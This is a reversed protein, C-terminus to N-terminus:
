GTPPQGLAGEWRREAARAVRVVVDALDTADLGFRRASTSIGLAVTVAGSPSTVPAAITCFGDAYEQEDLAHGRARVRELDKRLDVVRTLTRDTRPALPESEVADLYSPSVALLVKTMALAHAQDLPVHEALGPLHALGQHGRVDSVRSVVSTARRVLYSRQRTRHYLETVAEALVPGPDPDRPGVPAPSWGPDVTAGTRAGTGAGTVASAPPGSVGPAEWRGWPPRESLRCRGGSDRVTFGADCLTNIMYRGTASSKGLEAGLEGATLGRPRSGLLRLARLVVTATKLSRAGQERAMGPSYARAPTDPHRLTLRTWWWCRLDPSGSLFDPDPM